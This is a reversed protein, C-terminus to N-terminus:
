SISIVLSHTFIETATNFPCCLNNQLTRSHFRSDILKFKKNTKDDKKHIDQM